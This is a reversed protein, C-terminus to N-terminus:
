IRFRQVDGRLTEAQKVLGRMAEGMRRSSEENSRTREYVRELQEAAQRCAASQEQLSRNIQDVAERVSEV